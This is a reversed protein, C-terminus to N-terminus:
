LRESHHRHIDFNELYRETLPKNGKLVLLNEVAPLEPM